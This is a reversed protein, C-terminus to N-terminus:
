RTQKSRQEADYELLNLVTQWDTGTKERRIRKVVTSAPDPSVNENDPHHKDDVDDIKRKQTQCTSPSTTRSDQARMVESGVGHCDAETRMNEGEKQEDFQMVGTNKKKTAKHTDKWVQTNHNPEASYPKRKSVVRLSGGCRVRSIYSREEENVPVTTSVPPSEFEHSMDIAGLRMPTQADPSGTPSSPPTAPSPPRTITNTPSHISFLTDDGSGSTSFESVRHAKVHVMMDEIWSSETTSPVHRPYTYHPMVAM